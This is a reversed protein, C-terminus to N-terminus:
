NPACTGPCSMSLCMSVAAIGSSGRCSAQCMAPDVPVDGLCGVFCNCSDQTTCLELEACCHERLCGVCASDSAHPDCLGAATDTSAGGDADGPGMGTAADMGPPGGDAPSTSTAGPHATSADATPSPATTSSADGAQTSSGVDTSAGSSARDDRGLQVTPMCGVIVIVALASAGLPVGLGLWRRRGRAGWTCARVSM